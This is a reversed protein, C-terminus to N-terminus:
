GYKNTKPLCSIWGFSAIAVILIVVGIIFLIM